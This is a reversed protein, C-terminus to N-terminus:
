IQAAIVPVRQEDYCGWIPSHSGPRYCSSTQGLLWGMLLGRVSLGFAMSDDGAGVPLSGWIGLCSRLQCGYSSPASGHYITHAEHQVVGHRVAHICEPGRPRSSLRPGRGLRAEHAPARCIDTDASLSETIIGPFTQRRHQMLPNDWPAPRSPLRTGPDRVLGDNCSVLAMVVCFRSNCHGPKQLIGQSPRCMDAEVTTGPDKWLPERHRKRRKLIVLTIPTLRGRRRYPHRPPVNCARM